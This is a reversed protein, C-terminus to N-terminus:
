GDNGVITKNALSSSGLLIIGLWTFRAVDRRLMQLM